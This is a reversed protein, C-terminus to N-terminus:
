TDSDSVGFLDLANAMKLQSRLTKTQMTKRRIITSVEKNGFFQADYYNKEDDDSNM